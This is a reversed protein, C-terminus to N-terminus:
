ARALFEDVTTWTRVRELKQTLPNKYEQPEGIKCVAVASLELDAYGIVGQEGRVRDLGEKPIRVRDLRVVAGMMVGGRSFGTLQNLSWEEILGAATEKENEGTQKKADEETPRPGTQRDPRAKLGGMTRETIVRTAQLASMGRFIALPTVDALKGDGTPGMLERMSKYTDLVVSLEALNQPNTDLRTKLDGLEKETQQALQEARALLATFVSLVDEVSFRKTESISARDVTMVFLGTWTEGGAGEPKKLKGEKIFHALLSKADVGTLRRNGCYLGPKNLVAPVMAVAKKQAVGSQRGLSKM